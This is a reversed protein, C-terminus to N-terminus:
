NGLIIAVAMVVDLVNLLGDQNLDACSVQEDTLNSNELIHSVMAVIDLVDLDNDDNVDGMMCEAVISDILICETDTTRIMNNNSDRIIVSYCYENDPEIDEDLYFIDNYNSTITEDNKIIEFTVNSETRSSTIRDPLSQIFQSESSRGDNSISNLDFGNIITTSSNFINEGTIEDPEIYFTGEPSSFKYYITNGPTFGGKWAFGGLECYDIYQSVNITYTTDINENYTIQNLDVVGQEECSHSGNLDVVHFSYGNEMFSLANNEIIVSHYVGWGMDIIATQMQWSGMAPVDTYPGVWQRAGVVVDDIIAIIWDDTTLLVNQSFANEVFYFAQQPSQTYDIVLPEVTEGTSSISEIEVFAFNSFPQNGVVSTKFFLDESQDYIIFEPTEGPDLYDWSQINNSIDLDCGKQNGVYIPDFCSPIDSCIYNDQLFIQTGALILDCSWDVNISTLHNNWLMLQTPWGIYNDPLEKLYNNSLDLIFLTGFLVNNWWEPLYEIMNGTGWYGYGLYLVALSAASYQIFDPVISLQNGDLSIAALQLDNMSSPFSDDNLNNRWADLGSLNSLSGFSDPFEILGVESVNLIELYDLDSISEPLYPIQYGYSQYIGESIFSLQVLRGDVWVQYGLELPTFINSQDDVYGDDDSDDLVSSLSTIGNMEIIQSLVLLDDICYSQNDIVTEGLECGLENDEEGNPICDGDLINDFCDPLYEYSLEPDIVCTHLETLNCFSDPLSNIPNQNVWLSALSELSSIEDPLTILNNNSIYFSNLQILSEICSPIFSINNNSITLFHLFDLSCIQEPFLSFNNGQLWLDNLQYLNSIAEPLTSLSNYELNLEQLDMLDFISEPLASLSNNGLQLVEIYIMGNFIDDPLYSINNNSLMLSEIMNLNNFDTPLQSIGYEPILLFRVRGNNWQQDGLEYWEFSGDHNDYDWANTNEDINNITIIQEIISIDEEFYCGEDLCAWHNTNEDCAGGFYIFNLECPNDGIYEGDCDYDEEPYECNLEDSNSESDYNCAESDSCGVDKVCRVSCGYNYYHDSNWGSQHVHTNVNRLMYRNGVSSWFFAKLGLASFTYEDSWGGSLGGPLGTFGSENTAGENPEEWLDSVAKMKGGTNEDLFNILETWEETASVHWGEPCLGAENGNDYPNDVAFWNYLYGYINSNSSNNDYIRYAGTSLNSWNTQSFGTPIEDGNKYHTVKLNEAMWLQEGIQVTEYVNGDIDTVTAMSLSFLCLIIFLKNM